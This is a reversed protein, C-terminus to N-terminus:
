WHFESPGCVLLGLPRIFGLLLQCKGERCQVDANRTWRLETMARAAQGLLVRSERPDEWRPEPGPPVTVWKLEQRSAAASCGCPESHCHPVLPAYLLPPLVAACGAAGSQRPSSAARLCAFLCSSLCPTPSRLCLLPSPLSFLFLFFHSPSGSINM